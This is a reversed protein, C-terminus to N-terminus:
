PEDRREARKRREARWREFHREILEREARASGLVVQAESVRADTAGRAHAARDREARAQDVEHHRRTLYREAALLLAGTTPTARLADIAARAQDLQTRAARLRAEANALTAAATTAEGVAGALDQRRQLEDRGRAERLPTLRYRGAEGERSV